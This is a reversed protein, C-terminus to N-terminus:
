HWPDYGKEPQFVEASLQMPVGGARCTDITLTRGEGCGEGGGLHGKTEKNQKIDWWSM